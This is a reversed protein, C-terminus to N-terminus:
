RPNGTAQAPAAPSRRPVMSSLRVHVLLLAIVFRAFDRRHRTAGYRPLWTPDFKRKFFWLGDVDYWRRSLRSGLQLLREEIPGSPDLGSLPALGLSLTTAGMARFALAAESICYEVVGPPCSSSRRMLDLVWGGDSGTPRFTTFGLAQGDEGVAVAIPQWRLNHIDFHGITFGLEPGADKRWGADIEALWNVLGPETSPDIGSPFWRVSVGAKRCRTVTHRLNARCPGDLGFGHLDVIAELGVKFFRFGASDLLNRGSESLQYFVPARGYKRCHGLFAALVGASAEESGIPDGLAVATGGVVGYVVMGDAEPPSFVFKEEGLQFPLLAGRGFREAIARARTRTSPDAPQEPVPSIVGIAALLIPLRALVVLLGLLVNHSTIRLVKAALEDSMGFANGLASTADGLASMPEPWIGTAAIALSTELGIFVASVFGLAVIRRRWGATTEARYRSSDALLVVLPIGLLAIGLPSVLTAASSLMAALLTAVALWWAAAKCKLLGYSLSGLTIATLLQTWRSAGGIDAALADSNGVLPRVIALFSALSVIALVALALVPVSSGLRAAARKIVPGM